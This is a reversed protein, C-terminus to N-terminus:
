AANQAAGIFKLHTILLSLRYIVVKITVVKLPYLSLKNNIMREFLSIDLNYQTALQYVTTSPRLQFHDGSINHLYRLLILISNSELGTLNNFFLDSLGGILILHQCSKTLCTVIHAELVEAAEEVIVAFLFYM